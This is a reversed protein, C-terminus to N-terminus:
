FWLGGWEFNEKNRTWVGHGYSKDSLDGCILMANQSANPEQYYTSRTPLMIGSRKWTSQNRKMRRPKPHWWHRGGKGWVEDGLNCSPITIGHRIQVTKRRMNATRKEIIKTRTATRPFFGFQPCSSSERLGRLQASTNAHVHSCLKPTETRALSCNRM